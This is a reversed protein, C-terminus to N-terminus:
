FFNQTSYTDGNRNRAVGTGITCYDGNLINERHGPSGMWGDVILRADTSDASDSDVLGSSQIGHKGCNEGIGVPGDAKQINFGAAVARDNPTQGKKNVHEVYGNAAMDQSHARAIRALGHDWKLEKRLASRREENTYRFVFEEVVYTSLCRGLAQGDIAKRDEAKMGEVMDFFGLVTRRGTGVKTFYGRLTDAVGDRYWRVRDMFWSINEEAKQETGSVAGGAKRVLSAAYSGLSDKGVSFLSDAVNGWIVTDAPAIARPQSDILPARTVAPACGISLAALGTAIAGSALFRREGVGM